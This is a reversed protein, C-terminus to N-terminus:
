NKFGEFILFTYFACCLVHMDRIVINRVSIDKWFWYCIHWGQSPTSPLDISALQCQIYFNAKRQKSYSTYFVYFM